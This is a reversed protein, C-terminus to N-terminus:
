VMELTLPRFSYQNLFESKPGEFEVFLRAIEAINSASIGGNQVPTQALLTDLDFYSHVKKGLAIGTYVVTSYQTILEQCNAIMENTNGEQFVLTDAPAYQRIESLARQYNENPHLKFLLQRDGAIEVCHKIFAVRNEYRYTERMDTTAVMVYNHHPFHNHLATRLNDYNPIGTVLLKHFSTGMKAFFERYGESATCYIDCLDSSGNLSTNGPLYRPLGLAKILHSLVNMPDIMGEQVWISKTARVNRPVILDSCTVVLDYEFRRGQYDVQLQHEKLYQDAKKKFNGALITNDALGWEVLLNIFPNSDYYQSFWCDYEPLHQAIQHMQTTQNPSGVIFLIRKKM